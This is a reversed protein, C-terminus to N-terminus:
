YRRKGSGRNDMAEFTPNDAKEPPGKKRLLQLRKGGPSLVSNETSEPEEYDASEFQDDSGVSGEDPLRLQEIDDSDAYYMHPIDDRLDQKETEPKKKQKGTKEVTAM